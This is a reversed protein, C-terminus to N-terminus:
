GEIIDNEIIEVEESQMNWNQLFITELRGIKKKLCKQGHIEAHDM